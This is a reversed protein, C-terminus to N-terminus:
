PSVERAKQKNTQKNLHYPNWELVGTVNVMNKGGLSDQCISNGRGSINKKEGNEGKLGAWWKSRLDVTVKEDLQGSGTNLDTGKWALSTEYCQVVKRQPVRSLKWTNILWHTIPNIGAQEGLGYPRYSPLSWMEKPWSQIRSELRLHFHFARLRTRSKGVGHVIHDM